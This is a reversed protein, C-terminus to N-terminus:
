WRAARYSLDGPFRVQNKNSGNSKGNITATTGKSGSRFGHQRTQRPSSGIKRGQRCSQRSRNHQRQNSQRQREACPQGRRDPWCFTARGLSCLSGFSCNRRLPQCYKTEHNNWDKGTTFRQIEPLLSDGMANAKHERWSNNHQALPQFRVVRMGTM